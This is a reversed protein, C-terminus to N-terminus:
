KVEAPGDWSWRPMPLGKPVDDASAPYASMAATAWSFWAKLTARLEADDPFGADDLALAFCRQARADMDDREGTGSHMWLVYSHDGMAESYAAPGGLSEGWYAALRELHQPHGGPHSFAHSVVPDELCRHHWATALELMAQEGGAAEFITSRM